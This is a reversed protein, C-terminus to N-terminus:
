SRMTRLLATNMAVEDGEFKWGAERVIQQLPPVDTYDRVEVVEFTWDDPKEIAARMADKHNSAATHTQFMDSVLRFRYDPPTEIMTGPYFNFRTSAEVIYKIERAM